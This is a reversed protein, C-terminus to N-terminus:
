FCTSLVNNFLVDDKISASMIYHSDDYSITEVVRTRIRFLVTQM